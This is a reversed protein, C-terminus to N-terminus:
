LLKLSISFFFRLTFSYVVYKYSLSVQPMNLTCNVTIVDLSTVQWTCHNEGQSYNVPYSPNYIYYTQGSELNQFYFCNGNDDSKVGSLVAFFIPLGFLVVKVLFYNYDHIVTQYFNTNIFLATSSIHHAISFLKEFKVHKCFDSKGGEIKVHCM